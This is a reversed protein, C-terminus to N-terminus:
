ARGTREALERLEEALRVSLSSADALRFSWNGDPTAPDNMRADSGLSLVDQVAAIALEAPSAFAHRVMARAIDESPSLELERAVIRRTDASAAAWWGVVTDNDHTGPYAVCDTPHNRPLHPNMPDGDFAFELVRMGPLGARRRLEHVPEDILGLDEAVLPLEAGFARRLAEFFALGPGERWAGSRADPADSPVAWYAAFARFHDIRVVDAHVLARELRSKWWAFDDEAMREWRYLPNGWLQGKESFYDPPVGSVSAPRGEPDLEFLDRHTWVDCSNGDVYIPLDGLLSVGHERAFACLERWQREFFYLEAIRRDIGAALARTAGELARPERDRLAPEWDRWARFGHRERLADFVAADRAWTEEDHFREFDEAWPHHRAALLREAAHGLRPLKHAKAALFDVRDTNPAESADDLLGAGRLAELDVLLPNGALASWGVYPCDIHSPVLPLIQWTSCGAKALWAVFARAESGLDGIAGKGPLSTPHLLLGGRRLRPTDSM